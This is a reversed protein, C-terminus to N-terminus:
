PATIPVPQGSRWVYPFSRAPVYYSERVLLERLDQTANLSSQLKKKDIMRMIEPAYDIAVQGSDHLLFPLKFQPSYMSNVEAPKRNLKAYDISSFGPAIAQGKPLQGGSKSKYDDVAKQIEVTQQFSTLDMMKVTPKTEADVLVYSASGGNEFANVPASSLYPGVLKKFDIPYKEYLPTTEESNKIPLVGTKAKFQDVANQVLVVFEGSAIQNEKRMEKPYLCGSLLAFVVIMLAARLVRIM